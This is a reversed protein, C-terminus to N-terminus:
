ILKLWVKTQPCQIINLSKKRCNKLDAILYFLKPNYNKALCSQYIIILYIIYKELQGIYNKQFANDFDLYRLRYHLLLLANERIM